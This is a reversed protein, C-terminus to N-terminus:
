FAGGPCQLVGFCIWNLWSLLYPGKPMYNQKSRESIAHIKKEKSKRRRESLSGKASSVAKQHTGCHPIPLVHGRHKKQWGTLPRFAWKFNIKGKIRNKKLLCFGYLRNNHWKTRMNKNVTVSQEAKRGKHLPFYSNTVQYDAQTAALGVNGKKLVWFGM